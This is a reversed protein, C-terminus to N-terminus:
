QIATKTSRDLYFWYNQEKQRRSLAKEKRARFKTNERSINRDKLIISHFFHARTLAKKKGPGSNQIRERYIEIKRFYPFFKPWVHSKGCSLSCVFFHCQIVSLRMWWLKQISCKVPSRTTRSLRRAFSGQIM